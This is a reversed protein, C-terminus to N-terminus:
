RYVGSREKERMPSGSSTVRGVWLTDRARTMAVFLLRNGREHEERQLESSLESSANVAPQTPDIVTVDVFELGKARAFTGIKVAAVAVGLYANLTVWPIGAAALLRQHEQVDRNTACLLAMGGPDRGTAILQAVHTVARRNIEAVSPAEVNWVRGRERIAVVDRRGPEDNGDLDHFRDNAIVRAAERAIDAANRYNMRLVWSRGAVSIGAEALTYGGPYIQQQGDGILLLNEGSHSLEALLRIAQCNVDQVEDVIVAAYHTDFPKERLEATALSLLDTFDVVGHERLWGDYEVYMEWVTRRQEHGLRTRRGIRLLAAYAPFETIGRGKIVYNIEDCWYTWPVGVDALCSRKGRRRWAQALGTQACRQDVRLRHGRQRLLQSAWSHLGTFEVQRATDPSLRQYLGALVPPLTKLFSTVLIPRRSVEALYAAYHLALVTKGTGAAGRIRSPGTTLRRVVRLQEPHLFTMWDEIPALLAQQLVADGLAHIDFLAAAEDRNPLEVPLVPVPIMVSVSSNEPTGDSAPFRAAILCTLQDVQNETLRNGRRVIWPVLSHEDLIVVRGVVTETDRQNMFV